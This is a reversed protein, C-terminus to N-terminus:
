SKRSASCRVRARSKPLSSGCRRFCASMPSAGLIAAPASTAPTPKRTRVVHEAGRVNIDYFDQWRGWIGAISATHFVVDMSDCAAITADRDRLDAQVTEVGLVDLAPYQGRCLVRVEAGRALLLEVMYLGLFGGGGTVLARM